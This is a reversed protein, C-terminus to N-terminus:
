QHGAEESSLDHLAQKILYLLTILFGISNRDSPRISYCPTIPYSTSYKAVSPMTHTNSDCVQVCAHLYRMILRM